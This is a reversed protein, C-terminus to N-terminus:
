SQNGIETEKRINTEEGDKLISIVNPGVRSFRYVARLFLIICRM